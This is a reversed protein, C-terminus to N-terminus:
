RDSVFVGGNKSWDGEWAIEWAGESREGNGVGTVPIFLKTEEVGM